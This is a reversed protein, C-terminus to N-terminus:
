RSSPPVPRADGGGGAEAGEDFPVARPPRAESGEVEISSGTEYLVSGVVAEVPLGRLDAAVAPAEVAAVVEPRRMLAAYDSDAVARRVGESRIADRVEPRGLLAAVEPHAHLREWAQPDKMLLLLASLRAAEPSHGPQLRELVGGLWGDDIRGRLMTWFGGAPEALEGAAAKAMSRDTGDLFSVVGSLRIAGAVVWVFFASPILSLLAGTLRAPGLPRREEGGLVNAISRGVLALVGYALGGAVWAAHLVTRAGPPEGVIPTLWERGHLFVQYGAWAGLALSAMGFLLRVVGRFFARLAFVVVIALVVTEFSVSVPLGFESM